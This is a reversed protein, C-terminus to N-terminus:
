VLEWKGNDSRQRLVYAGRDDGQVKFYRYEPTAWRDAVSIVLVPRAGILVRRPTEDARYGSYCEVQIETEPNSM